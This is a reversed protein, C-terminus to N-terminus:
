ISQKNCKAFTEGVIFRPEIMTYHPPLDPNQERLKVLKMAKQAHEKLSVQVCSLVPRYFIAEQRDGICVVSVEEPVKIHNDSLASIVAWVNSLPTIIASFQPKKIARLKDYIAYHPLEYHPTPVALDLADVNEEGAFSAMKQRWLAYHEFDEYMKKGDHDIYQGVFAIKRHGAEILKDLALTISLSGIVTDFGFRYADVGIIIVPKANAKLKEKLEPQMEPLPEPPVIILADSNQMAELVARDEWSRAFFLKLLYNEKEACLTIHMIFDHHEPASWAPVLVALVKQVKSACIDNSVFTGVGPTRELYKESVLMGVANRVTMYSVKFEEALEREPLLMSGRPYNGNTIQHLIKQRVQETKNM